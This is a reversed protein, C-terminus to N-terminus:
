EGESQLLLDIFLAASWGFSPAASPPPSGDEPNYFEYIGKNRSILEITRERLDGALSERGIRRLAEHFIYNINIWVPGRWMTEPDYSASSQAVTALPYHTWFCGPDTLNEIMRAEIDAPLQGTWLPYLNFPTIEPICNGKHLAWFIGREPDYLTAIMSKVTARSREGWTAAEQRKGLLQAITALCDMQIALYTNLDPSVVPFGYDWLPNDDLGSSYPHHYQALGDFESARDRFWWRNWRVLAPYIEHLFTEDGDSEHIKLAAWAMVPPKTVRAGIPHDIWDVIGEDFVVDPIMGDELQHSLMTRLQNKALEPDLHRLGVAHFCADWNWVGIYKRKSPMMAEFELNGKPAVMNNALVWWAYLYADAHQGKIKPVADLWRSWRAEAARLSAAFPEPNAPDSGPPTMALDITADKGAQVIYEWFMSGAQETSRHERGPLTSQLQVDRMPGAPSGKSSGLPIRTNARFRIGSATDKPLGIAVTDPDRFCLRFEGVDTVFSLVHPQATLEFSLPTGSGDVLYFDELFPPRDLYTEPGPQLHIFREALKLYLADRDAYRYLLLRSGRDSFPTTTIDLRDLIWNLGAEL